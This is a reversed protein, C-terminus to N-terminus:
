HAFSFYKRFYLHTFVCLLPFSVYSVKSHFIPDTPLAKKENHRVSIASLFM